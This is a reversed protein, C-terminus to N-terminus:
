TLTLTQYMEIETGKEFYVKTSRELNGSAAATTQHSKISLTWSQFLNFLRQLSLLLQLLLFLLLPLLLLLLM